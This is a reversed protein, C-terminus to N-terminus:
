LATEAHATMEKAQEELWEEFCDDCLRFGPDSVDYVTAQQNLCRSCRAREEIGFINRTGILM